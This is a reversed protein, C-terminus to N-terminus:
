RLKGQYLDRLKGFYEFYAGSKFDPFTWDFSRFSGKYFDLVMDACITHNLMIKHGGFKTSALVIKTSDLYGPDINVLRKGKDTFFERELTISNKKFEALDSPNKTNKLSIFLRKLNEGIEPAYYNSSDFPFEDSLDDLPGFADAIISAINSPSVLPSFLIGFFYQVPQM